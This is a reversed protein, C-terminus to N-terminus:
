RLSLGAVSPYFVCHDSSTQYHNEFIPTCIPSSEGVMIQVHGIVNPLWLRPPNRLHEYELDGIGYIGVEVLLRSGFRTSQVPRLYARCTILQLIM